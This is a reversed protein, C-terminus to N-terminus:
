RPTEGNPKKRKALTVGGDSRWDDELKRREEDAMRQLYRRHGADAERRIEEIASDDPQLPQRWAQATQRKRRSRLILARAFGFITLLILLAGAGALILLLDHRNM